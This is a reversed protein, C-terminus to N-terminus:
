LRVPFDECRQSIRLLGLDDFKNFIANATRYEARYAGHILKRVSFGLYENPVSNTTFALPTESDGRLVHVQMVIEHGRILRRLWRRAAGASWRSFSVPAAM